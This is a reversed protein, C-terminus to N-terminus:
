FYSKIEIYPKLGLKSHLAAIKQSYEGWQTYREVYEQAKQPSKLLQLNVADTLMEYMASAFKDFNIHLKNEKDFSIANKELLYNFQILEAMRHPLAFVPKAKLFLRYIVLTAYVQKLQKESITGNKVYEHMFAVSAVDAKQEEILNKYQGLSSQFESTPGLSHANEHGIVFLHDAEPDFYQHLEPAVMQELIQQYKQQDASQQRVQRHYVNRHGGGTKIALKDNNPLNQATTISGRCQAYDGSLAVLDVDVMTQKLADGKGVSQKYKDSFPMLDALMPMYEKFKMILKTGEHNVIGVRIGLMDKNNIEIKHEKLLKMLPENDYITQTLQDDYNERGLTFDLDNNQLIAWHKDALSDMEVNNQLLAQVQWGLYEKFKQDSTYHAAVELESAIKAFTPAFYETFDIAELVEGDRRVMTRCSLIKQVKEAKGDKLMKEIIQHFEEVSLDDPYFNRGNNGHIGEFIEIPEQDVGNVGEVGNFSNFLRLANAAYNSSKAENELAQKMELNLKHDQELTIDNLMKAAAVLHELAKRDGEGLKKYGEFNKDVLEIKRMKHDVIEALEEESYAVDFGNIKM